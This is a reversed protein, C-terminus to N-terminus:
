QRVLSPQRAAENTQTEVIDFVKQVKQEFELMFNNASQIRAEGEERMLPNRTMLVGAMAEWERNAPRKVGVFNELTLQLNNTLTSSFATQASYFAYLQKFFLEPSSVNSTNDVLKRLKIAREYGDQGHRILGWFGSTDQKYNSLIKNLEEKMEELTFMIPTTEITM